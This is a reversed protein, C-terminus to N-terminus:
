RPLLQQKVSGYALTALLASGDVWIWSDLWGSFLARNVIHCVDHNLMLAGVHDRLRFALFGGLRSLAPGRLGKAKAAAHMM